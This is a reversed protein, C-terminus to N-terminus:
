AATAAASNATAMTKRSGGSTRGVAASAMSCTPRRSRGQARAASLAGPAGAASRSTVNSRPAGLSRRSSTASKTRPAFASTTSSCFTLQVAASRRIGLSFAVNGVVKTETSFQQRLLRPERAALDDGTCALRQQRPRAELQGIM